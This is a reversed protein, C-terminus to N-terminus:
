STSARTQAAPKFVIGVMMNGAWWFCADLVGYLIKVVHLGVAKGGFARAVKGLVVNHDWIRVPVVQCRETPCFSNTIQTLTDANWRFVWNVSSGETEWKTGLLRAVIGTHPEIVVVATRAVRLMETFGLTPRQLHHLGDQVLVIDYSDAPLTLQEADLLKTLLRPDRERCFDLASQSFDSVTVSRFGANALFTGEGGVGGCVVLADLDAASRGLTRLVRDIGIRLRRDRLYRILPDKTDHYSWHAADRVHYQQEFHEKQAVTKTM